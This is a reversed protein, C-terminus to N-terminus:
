ARATLAGGGRAASVVEHRRTSQALQTAEVRKDCATTSAAGKAAGCAGGEEDWAASAAVSPAEATYFTGDLKEVEQSVIGYKKKFDGWAAFHPQARHFEIASTDNEYVVGTDADSLELDLVDRGKVLGCDQLISHKLDLVSITAGVFQVRSQNTSSKFKYHVVM